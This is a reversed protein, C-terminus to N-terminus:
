IQQTRLQTQEIAHLKWAMSAVNDLLRQEIAHLIVFIVVCTSAPGARGRPSETPRPRRARRRKGGTDKESGGSVQHRSTTPRKGSSETM